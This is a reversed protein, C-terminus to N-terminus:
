SRDSGNMSGSYSRSRDRRPSASRKPSEAGREPTISPSRRREESRSRSRRRVPSSRSNRRDNREFSDSRRPPREHSRSRSRSRGHNRRQPPSRRREYSRSRSRSHSRRGRRPSRSYSRRRSHRPPSRRGKGRMQVPTKRDGAAFQVEISRGGVWKRDMGYLADEADRVDEFQIYAFGRPERTYYDLPVYVDSIPGFRSFERRLDEPRVSEGVNRVFLSLNPHGRSM